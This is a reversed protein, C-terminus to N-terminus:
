PPLEILLCPLGKGLKCPYPDGAESSPVVMLTHFHLSFMFSPFQFQVDLILYLTQCPYPFVWPSRTMPVWPYPYPIPIQCVAAYQTGTGRHWPYKVPIYIIIYTNNNQCKKRMNLRKKKWHFANHWVTICGFIACGAVRASAEEDETGSGDWM